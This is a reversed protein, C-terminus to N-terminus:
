RSARLVGNTQDDSLWVHSLIEDITLRNEPDMHLMRKLLDFCEESVENKMVDYSLLVVLEESEYIINPLKKYDFDKKLTSKEIACHPYLGTIMIFLMVGLSWIDISTLDVYEATGSEPSRYQLTGAKKFYNYLKVVKKNSKRYNAFNFSHGFDCIKVSKPSSIGSEYPKNFSLLINDPKLDLHAINKHHCQQVGICIERFIYKAFDEDFKKKLLLYDMLDLELKEMVIFGFNGHFFARQSQVINSCNHLFHMILIENQFNEIHRKSVDVVKIVCPDNNKTYEGHLIVGQAGDGLTDKLEIGKTLCIQNM